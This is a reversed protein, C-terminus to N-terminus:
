VYELMLASYTGLLLCEDGLFLRLFTFFFKVKATCLETISSVLTDGFLLHHIEDASVISVALIGFVKAGVEHAQKSANRREFVNKFIKENLLIGEVM